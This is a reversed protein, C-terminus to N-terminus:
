LITSAYVGGRTYKMSNIMNRIGEAFTVQPVYGVSKITKDVDAVLGPMPKSADLAAFECSAKEGYVDAMEEIYSRLVRSEPHAILYIGDEVEKEGLLYFWKGADDEYLYNWMQGAASFLAKEGRMFQKIAYDLMTGTNDNTGYVSFIRGWIHKMDLQECMRRSMMNASLKAIGYASVPNPRTEADIVGDVPGYEAQSGAGIFKKCGLRKALQVADLVTRINNEQLCLDDRESKKTHGWALHYFVDYSEEEPVYVDQLEELDSYYFHLLPSVPLREMRSTGRRVFALVEVNNQICEKILAVGIMSTAGTVAVKMIFFLVM